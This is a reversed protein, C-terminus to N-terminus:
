KPLAKIQKEIDTILYETRGKNRREKIREAPPTGPFGYVHDILELIRPILRSIRDSGKPDSGNQAQLTMWASFLPVRRAQYDADSLGASADNRIIPLTTAWLSRVQEPLSGSEPVKISLEQKEGDAQGAKTGASQSSGKSCGAALVAFLFVLLLWKVKVSSIHLNM